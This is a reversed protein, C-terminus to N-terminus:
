PETINVTVNYVNTFREVNQISADMYGYYISAMSQATDDDLICVVPLASKRNRDLEEFDGLAESRNLHKIIFAVDHKTVSGGRLIGGASLETQFLSRKTPLYSWGTAHGRLRTSSGFIVRPGISVGGVQVYGDPNDNFDYDIRFWTAAVLDGDAILHRAHVHPWEDLGTGPWVDLATSDYTPASTLAAESNALRLRETDGDDANTYLSGWHKPTISSEFQGVIFPTLSTSRWRASGLPNQLNTVEFTSVEESATLSLLEEIYRCNVFYAVAM